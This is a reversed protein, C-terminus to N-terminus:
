LHGSRVRVVQGSARTVAAPGPLSGWSRTTRNDGQVPQHAAVGAADALYARRTRTPIRRTPTREIQSYSVDM